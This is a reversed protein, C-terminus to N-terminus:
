RIHQGRDAAEASTIIQRLASSRLQLVPRKLPRPRRLGHNAITIVTNINESAPTGGIIPKM